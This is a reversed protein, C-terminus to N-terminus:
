DFIYTVTDLGAGPLDARGRLEAPYNIISNSLNVKPAAVSGTLNVNALTIEGASIDPAYVITFTGLVDDDNDLVITKSVSMFLPLIEPIDVNLSYNNLVMAEGAIIDGFGTIDTNNIDISGTVYVTGGLVLDTNNVNLDGDIYTPGLNQTGGSLTV